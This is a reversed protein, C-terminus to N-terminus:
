HFWQTLKLPGYVMRAYDKMYSECDALYGVKVVVGRSDTVKHSYGMQEKTQM